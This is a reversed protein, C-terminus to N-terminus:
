IVSERYLLVFVSQTLVLLLLNKDNVCGYDRMQEIIKDLKHAYVIFSTRDYFVVGEDRLKKLEISATQRAVHILGAVDQHTIDLGIEAFDVM